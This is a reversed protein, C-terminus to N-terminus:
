SVEQSRSAKAEKEGPLHGKDRLWTYTFLAMSLMLALIVWYFVLMDIWAGIPPAGPLFNRLPILAFLLAAQWSAMTAEITGPKRYVRISVSLAAIALVAMLILVVVVFALTGGARKLSYQWVLASDASAFSWTAAWGHPAGIQESIWIPVANQGENALPNGKDDLVSVQFVPMPMPISEAEGTDIPELQSYRDVPYSDYNGFTLFKVEHLSYISGQEVTQSASSDDETTFFYNVKMKNKFGGNIGSAYSGHPFLLVRVTLERRLPDVSIVDMQAEIGNAQEVPAEVTTSKGSNAYIGIAAIYVLAFLVICTVAVVWSRRPKSFAM